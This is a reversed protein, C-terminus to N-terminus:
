NRYKWRAYANLARQPATTYWAYGNRREPSLEMVDDHISKDRDGFIPRGTQLSVYRAWVPPAGPSAVLERGHGTEIWAHDEIATAQLWAVGDRVAARVAESREPLYMLFQLIRASEATSLSPPEFNRAGVPELTLPDHQQGWGTLRGGIRVQSALICRVGASVAQTARRRVRDPVFTSGIDGDGVLLLLELVNTM